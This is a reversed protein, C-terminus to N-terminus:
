KKEDNQPVIRGLNKSYERHIKLREFFYDQLHTPQTAAVQEAIVPQNYREKFAVGAAEKDVYIKDMEEKTKNALNFSM